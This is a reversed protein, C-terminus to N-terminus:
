DRGGRQQLLVDILADLQASLHEAGVGRGKTWEPHGAYVRHAMLGRERLGQLLRLERWSMGADHTATWGLEANARMGKLLNDAIYADTESPLIARFPEM